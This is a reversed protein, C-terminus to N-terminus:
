NDNWRKENYYNKISDIIILIFGWPFLIIGFSVIINAIMNIKPIEMKAIYLLTLQLEVFIAFLLILINVIFKTKIRNM